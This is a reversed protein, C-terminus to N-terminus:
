VFQLVIKQTFVFRDCVFVYMQVYVESFIYIYFFILYINDLRRENLYFFYQFLLNCFLFLHQEYRNYSIFNAVNYFFFFFNFKQFCYSCYLIYIYIFCFEFAHVCLFMCYVYLRVLICILAARVWLCLTLLM